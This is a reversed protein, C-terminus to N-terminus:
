KTGNLSHLNKNMKEQFQPLAQIMSFFYVNAFSKLETLIDDKTEKSKYSQKFLSIIKEPVLANHSNYDNNFSKHSGMSNYLSSPCDKLFKYAHRFAIYNAFIVGPVFGFLTLLCCILLARVWGKEHWFHVHGKESPDARDQPDSEFQSFVKMEKSQLCPLASVFIAGPPLFWVLWCAICSMCSIVECFLPLCCCVFISTPCFNKPNTPEDCCDDVGDMFCDCSDDCPGSECIFCGLFDGMGSHWCCCCCSDDNSEM